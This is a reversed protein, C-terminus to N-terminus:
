SSVRDVRALRSVLDRGNMALWDNVDLLRRGRRRLEDRSVLGQNMRGLWHVFSSAERMLILDPMTAREEDSISNTQLYGTAFAEMGEWMPVFETHPAGFAVLGLAFDMARHSSGAFEFDIIGSVQGDTVLVNPPFYDAHIIQTPWGATFKRWRREARALTAEIATAMELDHFTAHTARALDPIEPHGSDLAGFTSPTEIITNFQIQAMAIDLLALAHGAGLALAPDGRWGPRGSIRPTLSLAGGDPVRAIAEGTVTSVPAPVAFPLNSQALAQLLAQEFGVRSEADVNLYHKLFFINGDSCRVVHTQNNLGTTV